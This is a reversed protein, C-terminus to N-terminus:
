EDREAGRNLYTTIYQVAEAVAEESVAGYTVGAMFSETIVRRAAPTDEIGCRGCITSYKLRVVNTCQENNDDYEEFNYEGINSIDM